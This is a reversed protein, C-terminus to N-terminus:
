LFELIATETIPIKFSKVLEDYCDDCLDWSHKEGDKNSFYGFGYDVAFSGDMVYGNEVTLEKGCQNCFVKSIENEQLNLYERM